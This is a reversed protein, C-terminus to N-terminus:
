WLLSIVAFWRLALIDDNKPTKAMPTIAIVAAAQPARACSVAETSSVARKRAPIAGDGREGNAAKARTGAQRL